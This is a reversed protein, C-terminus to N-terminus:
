FGAFFGYFVIKIRQINRVRLPLNREGLPPSAVRLTWFAFPSLPAYKPLAPSSGVLNNQWDSPYFGDRIRYILFGQRPAHTFAIHEGTKTVVTSSGHHTAEIKVDQDPDSAELGELFVQIGSVLPTAFGSFTASEPPVAFSIAGTKVFDDWDVTNSPDLIIPRIFETATTVDQRGELARQEEKLLNAYTLSITSVSTDDIQIKDQYLGWFHLSRYVKYIGEILDLKLHRLKESLYQEYDIFLRGSQTANDLISKIRLVEAESAQLRGRLSFYDTVANKSELIKNNRTKCLEKFKVVLDYLARASRLKYIYPKVLDEIEGIDGVMLARPSKGDELYKKIRNYADAAGAFQKGIVEIQDLPDLKDDINNVAKLIADPTARLTSVSTAIGTVARLLDGFRCGGAMSSLEEKFDGISRDILNQNYVILGSLDTIENFLTNRKNENDKLKSKISDFLTQADDLSGRMILRAKDIDAQASQYSRLNQEAVSAIKFIESVYEKYSDPGLSPVHSVPLGYFDFGCSIQQLLANCRRNLGEWEARSEVKAQAGIDILETAHSGANAFNSSVSSIWSFLVQAVEVNRSIYESEAKRLLLRLQVFSCSAGIGELTVTKVVGSYDYKQDVSNWYVSDGETGVGGVVPPDLDKAFRGNSGPEGQEGRSSDDECFTEGESFAYCFGNIGGLGGPGGIGPLESPIGPEGGGGKEARIQISAQTAGALVQALVIRGASGGPGGDGGAGADGGPLGKGGKGGRYRAGGDVIERPSDVTWNPGVPGQAGEMGNGGPGGKGGRGGNAELRLSGAITEAILTINGASGGPDGPGGDEGSEGSNYGPIPGTGIGGDLGSTDIVTDATAVIARAVLKVNKGPLSYSGSLRITDAYVILDHSYAGPTLEEDIGIIIRTKPNQLPYLFDRHYPFFGEVGLADTKVEPLLQAM